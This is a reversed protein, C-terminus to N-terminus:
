SNIELIGQNVQLMYMRKYPTEKRRMDKGQVNKIEPLRTAGKNDNHRARPGKTNKVKGM